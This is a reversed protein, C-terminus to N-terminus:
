TRASVRSPVGEQSIATAGARERELTGAPGSQQPSFRDPRFRELLPAERSQLIEQAALEGLIPAMTVAAHAVIVYLGETQPVWGVVPLGDRPLVRVCVDAKEVEAGALAPVHRAGLGVARRPLEDPLSPLPGSLGWTGLAQVRADLDDSWLMLRGGGDPRVNLGDVCVVRELSSLVPQSVVILGPAVSRAADPVMLSLEVGASALIQDTWRGCCCLVVDAPLREGSELAVAGIGAGATELGVVREHQRVDLGLQRGARLLHELMRHVEVYGEDPYFFIEEGGAIVLDPALRARVRQPSVQAVSYGADRLRAAHEALEQQKPASREIQLFGTDVLWPASGLESRLRRYGAIGAARLEFYEWYGAYSANVHAFTTGSTGSGPTAAEVLTVEAEQEALHLATLVGVV